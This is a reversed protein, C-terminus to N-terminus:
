GLDAHALPHEGEGVADAEEQGEVGGQAARHAADEDARDEVPQALAGRCGARGASARARHDESLPEATREVQVQVEVRQDEVADVDALTQEGLGAELGRGVDAILVDRM